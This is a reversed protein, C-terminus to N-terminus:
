NPSYLKLPNVAMVQSRMAADPVWEGILDVLDGDNAMKRGNRMVHPWNSGWVLREPAHRVLARAFPLVPAYPFDEKTCFAPNSLKLWVRGTDLLELLATFGPQNLGLTTDLRGFHDIVITNPLSLFLKKEAAIGGPTFTLFEIHMDADALRKAMRRNLRPLHPYAPGGAFRAGLVGRRRLANLEAPTVNDEVYTVGKFKAPYRELTELLYRSDSGYGAGNAIVAKELGLIDMQRLYTEPLVAASRYPCGPHFPYQEPDGYVHILCDWSDAPLELRPKRPYPDPPDTLLKSAGTALSVASL